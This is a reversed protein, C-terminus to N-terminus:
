LGIWGLPLGLFPIVAVLKGTVEAQKVRTFANVTDVDVTGARASKVIGLSLGTGKVDVLVKDGPVAQGSDKYVVISSKASGMASSLGAQPHAFRFGLGFLAIVFVAIIAVIKKM